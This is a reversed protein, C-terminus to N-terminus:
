QAEPQDATPEAASPKGPARVSRLVDSFRAALPKRRWRGERRIYGHSTFVEKEIEASLKRIRSGREEELIYIKPRWEELEAVFTYGAEDFVRPRIRTRTQKRFKKRENSFQSYREKVYGTILREARDPDLRAWSDPDVDRRHIWRSGIHVRDDAVGHLVGTAQGAFSNGQRVFITVKDGLRFHAHRQRAQMLFRARAQAKPYKKQALQEAQRSIEAEVQEPSKGPRTVPWVFGLSEAVQQPSLTREIGESTRTTITTEIHARNLRRARIWKRVGLFILSPVVILMAILILYAATKKM